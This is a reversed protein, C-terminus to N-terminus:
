QCLSTREVRGFGLGLFGDDQGRVRCPCCEPSWLVCSSGNIDPVHAVFKTSLYM